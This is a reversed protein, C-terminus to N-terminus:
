KRRAKKNTVLPKFDPPIFFRQEAKCITVQLNSNKELEKLRRNIEKVERSTKRKFAPFEFEHIIVLIVTLSALLIWPLDILGFVNM